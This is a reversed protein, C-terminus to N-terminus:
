AVGLPQSAAMLRARIEQKLVKGLSNRPLADWIEVQEPMKFRAVHRQELFVQLANVDPRRSGSAIIVACAREGTRANPIGVVAVEAIDPHESLLDEIEKPSINEGNRIIIDKARGTIVLYDGDIRKAIDGTRFFGEDDFAELEHETWIYGVLMQPGRALVEGEDAIRGQSDVLKVQAIGIKGDSDAAHDLDGPGLSGVTIVPVETSGFVRSVTCNEFYASAERILTPPVSAGGCIFLSLDPLRTGQKGAATLLQRLFPTAGAMHTCRERVMIAVAEDANWVDQLVAVTGILFPFEFAYISGGIHGIPSPVFFRGGRPVWHRHLQRVLANITNHSHMVGKPRATTGSTYLVIKVSDPDVHPLPERRAASELLSEYRTCGDAHGRVVVVEAPRSLTDNVRRMMAVYDFTRFVSPIFVIRSDIDEFMFAIESDRLSPVVLNVVVGSLTAGLYIVAAEHWNPLMISIVDGPKLGRAIFSQAMCRAEEFLTAADIRRLGDVLVLAHPDAKAKRLAIDAITEDSWWGQARIQAARKADVRISWNNLTRRMAM